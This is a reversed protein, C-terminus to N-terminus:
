SVMQMTLWEAALAPRDEGEIEVKVGYKFSWRGPLRSEASMLAFRGRVRKGSKVPTIFRVKEFGYNVGMAIGECVLVCDVAMRSLMSLTLFGHAVTTGYPTAKAAEPDIHIFQNDETVKAFADIRAQDIILWDSVGVEKGVWDKIESTKILKMRNQTRPKPNQTGPEPNRPDAILLFASKEIADVELL